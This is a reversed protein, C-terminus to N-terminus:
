IRRFVHQRRQFDAVAVRYVAFIRDAVPEYECQPFSEQLLVVLSVLQNVKAQHNAVRDCQRFAVNVFVQNFDAAILGLFRWDWAAYFFYSAALLWLKRTRNSRLFWHVAFVAVM